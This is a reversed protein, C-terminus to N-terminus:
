VRFRLWQRGDSSRGSPVNRSGSASPSSQLYPPPPPPPPVVAHRRDDRDKRRVIQGHPGRSPSRGSQRSPSLCRAPPRVISHTALFRYPRRRLISRPRVIQIKVYLVQCSTPHCVPGTMYDAYTLTGNRGRDSDISCPRCVSLHLVSEKPEVMRGDPWTWDDSLWRRNMWCHLLSYKNISILYRHREHSM